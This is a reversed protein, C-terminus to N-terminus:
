DWGHSEFILRAEDSKLFRIFNAAEEVYPTRQTLAVPTYRLGEEGPIEIFDSQEELSFHWSRYTIWADIEPSSLWAEVGQRGTYVHKAVRGLGGDEGVHFHRMRELKVDLLGAGERKLDEVGRIDLPNGKRVIIGIRRPYLREATSMDLVGPNQRDFEELMYEAGGFYIDGDEPLRSELDHPLARIIKVEVGHKEFFLDACETLAHYPGGPGYARLVSTSADTSTTVTAAYLLWGFVILWRKSTM